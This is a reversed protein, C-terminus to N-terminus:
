DPTRTRAIVYSVFSACVGLMFLADTEDVSVGALVQAHRIGQEDSSYDYLSKMAEKLRRHLRKRSAIKDLASALGKNEPEVTKAISEVAHISERVSGAWDGNRLAAGANLLHQRAGDAGSRGADEIAKVVAQGQEATGIAIIRRDDGLRYAMRAEVFAHSIEKVFHDSSCDHRSVFELFNFMKDFKLNQAKKLFNRQWFSPDFVINDPSKEEFNVWFDELFKAYEKPFYTRVGYRSNRKLERRLALAALRRFESSVVGLELQPPVPELGSRQSFTMYPEDSKTM